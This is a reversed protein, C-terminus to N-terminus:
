RRKKATPEVEADEAELEAEDDTKDAVRVKSDDKKDGDKADPGTNDLEFFSGLVGAILPLYAAPLDGINGTGAKLATLDLGLHVWTRLVFLAGLALLLGFFAKLGAEIRGEASWVPKGAVLGTLVGTGGAALYAVVASAGSTVALGLGQVLIAAVVAGLIGGVILGIFLRKLFM